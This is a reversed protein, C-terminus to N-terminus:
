LTKLYEIVAMREADTFKDGYTHGGNSRGPQSTDYVKRRQRDPWDPHPPPVDKFKWGLKVPDYDAEDTRFSRTFCKPRAKSNLVHWVTPISGNHLYPATAWIGDLPPVQYGETPIPHYAPGKGDFEPKAFWSEDYYRGFKESLGEFVGATPASRTWRSSRTQIRGTTATRATVALATPRLSQQM